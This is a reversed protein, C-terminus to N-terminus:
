VNKRAPAVTVLQDMSPVSRKNTLYIVCFNPRRGSAIYSTQSLHRSTTLIGNQVAALSNTTTNGNNEWNKASILFDLQGLMTFNFRRCIFMASFSVTM